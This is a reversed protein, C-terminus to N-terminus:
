HCRYAGSSGAVHITLPFAKKFRLGSQNAILSLDTEIIAIL